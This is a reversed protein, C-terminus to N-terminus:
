NMLDKDLYSDLTDSVTVEAGESKLWPVFVEVSENPEHGKWGGYVFLIKKGKLSPTVASNGLAIMRNSFLLTGAGAV